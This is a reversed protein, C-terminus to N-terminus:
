DFWRKGATPVDRIALLIMEKGSENSNLRRANLLMKRPGLQPFNHEVKFDKIQTSQPLIEELLTRLQPIDWQGNGLDYIFKGETEERVTLFKEYFTENARVVRLESDLAVFPEWMIEGIQELNRKLENIDLLALVAGDIKNDKTRYPRIRLSYWQGSRDRVECEKLHLTEIVELIMKDLEAVEVHIKIDSINRGVDTPILSFFKQAAPTFRRISLNNDVMVVPIQISALLNILDNNVRSAELNAHQLEDNVTALEENTSQMEEKSTELEENTSQLEENSSQIEENASKLEENTAEQEENVTQFSERAAALEERLRLIEAETARAGSGGRAQGRKLIRLEQPELRRTEEFLVLLFTDKAPAVKFPVVEVKLQRKQDKSKAWTIQKRVPGHHKLAKAIASRLRIELESRVMKLLNLSAAGPTHELYPGTYGRFQLVQMKSDIVVGGPTFHHLLVRDATKEINPLLPEPAVPEAAPAAVADGTFVPSNFILEPRTTPSTKIYLKQKKDTQTFLESRSGISEASSLLLFGNEQLAYHFVPIVRKQLEPGFYIMVNQCSILDMKSFPPDACLNQRAFVCLDRIAKHIRFGDDAPSFFRRLREPSVDLAINARFIGARAKAIARESIDTGFIQVPYDAARNGLFEVLCIALSYVEEGSSCGPVWIRIPVGRRRNKILSPFVKKVLVKLSEPDRFFRTVNILADDFLAEVETPHSQLYHVYKELKEIQHVVMRRQIRRKLTTQKYRAFDVGSASRLLSYIKGLLAPPEEGVKGDRDAATHAPLHLLIKAFERAMRQPPLIFDVCGSAIASGPMGAYKATKPDQAFTLGDAGKIAELGLTGDSGNGSFIIGIANERQDEALSRLFFDVPMPPADAQQRPSLKLRGGTIALYKNPPIVYVHNPEVKVTKIVEIVSLRTSRSLLETLKSEHKPDLHQVLVVAVGSDLPLEELFKTFAEYGGASAGIGVV